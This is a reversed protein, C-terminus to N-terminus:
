LGQEDGPLRDFRTEVRHLQALKTTYELFRQRRWHEYFGAALKGRAQEFTINEAPREGIYRAIFGGDIDVVLPTTEGPARLKSVEAGVAESLPQDTGQFMRKFVVHRGAWEPDRAMASFEDLTKAPHSRLFQALERATQERPERLEKPMPAGTYVALVGIEVLRSHVFTDRVRQYLPRLDSDPISEPHLGPEFEKELLRQVLASQVDADTSPAPIHRHERAAEALLYADILDGLAARVAHGTMKAHAEVQKAFIPVQGVRAVM